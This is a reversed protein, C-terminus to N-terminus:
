KLEIETSYSEVPKNMNLDIPANVPTPPASTNCTINATSSTSCYYATTAPTFTGGSFTILSGSVGNLKTTGSATVTGSMTITRPATLTAIELNHVNVAGTITHDANTLIMKGAGSYTVTGASINGALTLNGNLTISGNTPYFNTPYFTGGEMGTVSLGGIGVTLSRAGATFGNRFSNTSILGSGGTFTGDNEFGVAGVASITLTGAGMEFTAGSRNYLGQLGPTAAISTIAGANTADITGFNQIGKAGVALTFPTANPAFDLTSTTADTKVSVVSVNANVTVTHGAAIVVDDGSGPVTAGVWTGGANWNGTGASTVTAAFAQGSALLALGCAM